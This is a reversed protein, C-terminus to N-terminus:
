ESITEKKHLGAITAVFDLSQLKKNVVDGCALLKYDCLLDIL